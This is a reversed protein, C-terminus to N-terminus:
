PRIMKKENMLMTVPKRSDIAPSKRRRIAKKIKPAHQQSHWATM